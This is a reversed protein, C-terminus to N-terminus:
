DGKFVFMEKLVDRVVRALEPRRKFMERFCEDMQHASGSVVLFRDGDMAVDTVTQAREDPKRHANVDLQYRLTRVTNALGTEMQMRILDKETM